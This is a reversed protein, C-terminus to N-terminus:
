KVIVKASLSGAKVVYMGQPVDISLNSEASKASYVSAGLVNYVNVAENNLGQISIGNANAFMKVSSTSNEKVSNGPLETYLQSQPIIEAATHVEDCFWKLIAHANFDNDYHRVEIKYFTNAELEVDVKWAPKDWGFTDWYTDEKMPVELDNLDYIAFYFGDDWKTLDFTYSGAVPALVYGKWKCCFAVETKTEDFPNGLEWDFNINADVREFVKTAVTGEPRQKWFDEGEVQDFNTAGTWYEGNLGDGNGTPYSQAFACVSSFLITSLLLNLKRM